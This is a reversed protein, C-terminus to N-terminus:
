YNLFVGSDSEFALIYYSEENNIIDVMIDVKINNETLKEKKSEIMKIVEKKIRLFKEQEKLEM